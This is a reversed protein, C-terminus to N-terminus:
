VNQHAQRHHSSCLWIVDLPRSYDPHHAEAKEGCMFCPQKVLLGKRMAYYVKMHAKKREPHKDRWIKKSQKKQETYSNNREYKKDKVSKCSKCYTSCGTKTNKDKHFFSFDKIENCSSCKKMHIEM